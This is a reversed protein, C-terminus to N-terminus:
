YRSDGFLRSLWNPASPRTQPPPVAAAAQAEPAPKPKARVIKPLAPPPAPRPRSLQEGRLAAAMRGDLDYIDKRRELAGDGNVWATFYALHVPVPESVALGREKGGIMKKLRDGSLGQDGSLADAFELPKDVRVCGHSLARYDNGFLKRSSTDHLYVAFRNQFQFKIHGLANREGPPQRIRLKHAKVDAWNVESPPVVRGKSDVVEFGRLSGQSLEALAISVPVNWYPNVVINNIASTLVPTQNSPKGIIVRTEYTDQGDKVVRLRYAPLDVFVHRAGLDRPMWRWREMNIAILEAEDRREFGGNLAGITQRGVVGSSEIKKDLQFNVVAAALADDYVYDDDAGLLGLRKRLAPVRPDEDGPRLLKGFPIEPRDAQENQAARAEKLLKRLAQFQPLPPNFADLM